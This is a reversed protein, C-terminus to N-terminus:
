PRREVLLLGRALRDLGRHGEGAAGVVQPDAVPEGGAADIGVLVDCVMTTGGGCITAFMFTPVM